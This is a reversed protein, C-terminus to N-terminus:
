NLAYRGSGNAPACTVGGHVVCCAVKLVGAPRTALGVEVRCEYLSQVSSLSSGTSEREDLPDFRRIEQCAQCAQAFYSSNEFRILRGSNSQMAFIQRAHAETWLFVAKSVWMANQQRLEVVLATRRNTLDQIGSSFIYLSPTGRIKSLQASSSVVTV